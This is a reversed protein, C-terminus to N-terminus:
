VHQAEVRRMLDSAALGLAHATNHLQQYTMMESGDLLRELGAPALDAAVEVAAVTAGQSSIEARITAMLAAVRPDATM